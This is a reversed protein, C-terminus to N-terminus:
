RVLTVLKNYEAKGYTKKYASAARKLAGANFRVNKRQLENRMNLICQVFQTVNHPKPTEYMREFDILVPGKTSIIVHKFPHHMEEKNLKLQDLTYMQRLVAKLINLVQQKSATEFFEHMFPGTVFEYILQGNEFAVFEPGIGYQNLLPLFQAENAIRNLAHSSPNKVKIAVKKRGLLATYIVGRKGKAFYTRNTLKM